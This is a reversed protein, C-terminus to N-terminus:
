SILQPPFAFGNPTVRRNWRIVVAPSRILWNHLKEWQGDVGDLGWLQFGVNFLESSTGWDIDVTNGNRVSSIHNLTVPLTDFSVFADEVEGNAAFGTPEPSNDSFFGSATDTTIRIRAFTRNPSQTEVDGLDTWILVYDNTGSNAPVNGNEFTCPGTGISSQGNPCDGPAGPLSREATNFSGDPVFSNGAGFDLWGVLQADENSDNTASVVLCYENAQTTYGNCSMGGDPLYQDTFEVSEDDTADMDDGDAFQGPVADSDADAPDTGIYVDSSIVHNAGNSASLSSYTDPADGFDVLATNTYTCTITQQAAGAPVVFSGALNTDLTITGIGQDCVLETSYVDPNNLVESLNVTNGTPVDEILATNVVSPVDPATSTASDSIPTITGPNAWSFQPNDIVITENPGWGDSINDFGLLTTTTAVNNIVITGTDGDDGTITAVSLGNFEISITEPTSNVNVIRYDVSFTVPGVASSLDVGRSIDRNDLDNFELEEGVIEISGSTPDTTENVETWNGVWNVNGDNNSYSPTGNFRDLINFNDPAVSDTSSLDLQATDGTVSGNWVKELQVDAVRQNTYTCVINEGSDVDLIVKTPTMPDPTFVSTDGNPADTACSVSVFEWGAPPTLEELEYFGPVLPFTSLETMPDFFDPVLVNGTGGVGPMSGTTTAEEIVETGDVLQGQTTCQQSIEQWRFGFTDDGGISVKNITLTGAAARGFSCSVTATGEATLFENTLTDTDCINNNLESFANLEISLSTGGIDVTPPPPLPTIITRDACGNQNPGDPYPCPNANNPTEDLNVNFGQNLVVTGGGCSLDEFEFRANLQIDGITTGGIPNNYHTLRGLEFFGLGLVTGGTVELGDFGFGSRNNVNVPNGNRFQNEVLPDDSQNFPAPELNPTANCAPNDVTTEILNPPPSNAENDETCYYAGSPNTPNTTVGWTGNVSLLSLADVAQAKGTVFLSSLLAFMMFISSLQFQRSLFYFSTFKTLKLLASVTCTNMGM